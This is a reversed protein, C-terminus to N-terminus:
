FGRFQNTQCACGSFRVNHVYLAVTVLWKNLVSKSSQAIPRAANKRDTSVSFSTNPQKSDSPTVGRLM